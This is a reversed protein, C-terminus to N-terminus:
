GPPRGGTRMTPAPPPAPMQAGTTENMLSVALRAVEFVTPKANDLPVIDTDATFTRKPGMDNVRVDVGARTAIEVIERTHAYSPQKHDKAFQLRLYPVKLAPINHVAERPRWWAEDDCRGYLYRGGPTPTTPPPEPPTSAVPTGDWSMCSPLYRRSVPGEWDILFKVPLEPHRALAGSAAAIGYSYSVLGIRGPDVRDDKAVAQIVAALGDQGIPGNLDEAGTSAGRGQPDVLVLAFGAETYPSTRGYKLEFDRASQDGGPVVVLTPFPGAGQGPTMLYWAITAGGSPNDTYNPVVDVASDARPRGASALPRPEAAEAPAPVPVPAPEACAMVLLLHM